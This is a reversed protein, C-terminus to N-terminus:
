RYGGHSYKHVHIRGFIRLNSSPELSQFLKGIILLGVAATGAFKGVKNSLKVKSKFSLM